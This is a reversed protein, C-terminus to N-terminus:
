TISCKRCGTRFERCRSPVRAARCRFGTHLQSASTELPEGDCFIVMFQGAAITRGAPFAWNTLNTYNNALYLGDLSV